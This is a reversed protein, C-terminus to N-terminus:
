GFHCGATTAILDYVPPFPNEPGPGSTLVAPCVRSADPRRAGGPWRPEENVADPWAGQARLWAAMHDPDNSVRVDDFAAQGEPYRQRLYNLWQKLRGARHRREVRVVVHDWFAGLLPVIQAWSVGGLSKIALALGPDTVM